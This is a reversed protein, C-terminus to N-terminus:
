IWKKMRVNQQISTGAVEEQVQDLLISEVERKRRYASKTKKRKKTQSPMEEVDEEESDKVPARITPFAKPNLRFKVKVGQKDMESRMLYNMNDETTFHRSCIKHCSKWIYKKRTTNVFEVWKNFTEIDKDKKPFLFFSVNPHSLQTRNCGGVCCSNPM